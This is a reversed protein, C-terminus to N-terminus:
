KVFEVNDLHEFQKDGTLFKIGLKKAFIYGICDTMSLNNRKYLLRLKVAERIVDEDYDEVFKIYKNIFIDAEQEKNERLFISYIEFINLKTIVLSVDTYKEYNKNGILLEYLAYSDFFFINTTM